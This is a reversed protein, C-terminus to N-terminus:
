KLEPCCLNNKFHSSFRFKNKGSILFFTTGFDLTPVYCDWSSSYTHHRLGQGLGSRWYGQHWSYYSYRKRAQYDCGLWRRKGAASFSGLETACSQGSPLYTGWLGKGAYQQKTVWNHIGRQLVMSWLEGPEETWLIKWALNSSHTAMEKQALM